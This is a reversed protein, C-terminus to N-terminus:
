DAPVGDVEDEVAIPIEATVVTGDGPASEFVVSGGLDGIRQEVSRIGLGTDNAAARDFGLGDDRVELRIADGHRGVSLSANHAAAHREVNSVLERAIMYLERDHQSELDLDDLHLDLSWRTEGRRTALLGRLRLGLAEPPLEAAPDRTLEQIYGRLDSIVGNLDDNV